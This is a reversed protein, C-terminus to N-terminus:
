KGLLRAIVAAAAEGAAQEVEDAIKLLTTGIARAQEPNPTYIIGRGVSGCGCKCPERYVYLAIRSAGEIVIHGISSADGHVLQVPGEGLDAIHTPIQKQPDGVASLYDPANTVSVRLPRTM